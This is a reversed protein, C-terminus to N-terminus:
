EQEWEPIEREQMAMNGCNACEFNDCDAIEPLISVQKYNCIRCQSDIVVFSQSLSDRILDNDVTELDDLLGADLPMGAKEYLSIVDDKTPCNWIM